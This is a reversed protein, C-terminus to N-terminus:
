FLEVDSSDDNHNEPGEEMALDGKSVLRDVLEEQEDVLHQLLRILSDFTMQMTEYSQVKEMAENVKSEISGMLYQEQDEDLGLTPMAKELSMMLNSMLGSGDEQGERMQLSLTDLTMRIDKFSESFKQTHDQLLLEMELQLVKQNACALIPPIVDKYRGYRARDEVPMNKVLCAVVPYNIQTRQGFDFFRDEERLRTMIEKEIPKSTHDSCFFYSEAKTEFILCTKLELSRLISFISEALQDFNNISYTKEFFQVILGLESAGTMSEIATSQAEKFQNKLDVKHEHHRILAKVKAVVESSEFPKSIYDDGGSSYGRIREELNTHGSIFLIPTFLFESKHRIEHCLDYGNADPLEVDLIILDPLEDTILAMGEVGTGAIHLEVVGNLARQIYKQSIKDDEIVVAKKMHTGM